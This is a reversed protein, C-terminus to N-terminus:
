KEIEFSINYHCPYVSSTAYSHGKTHPVILRVWAKADNSTPRGLNIYDLPVLWGQPVSSGYNNYMQGSLFSATYTSGVRSVTMKDYNRADYDNRTQYVGDLINYENYRILLNTQLNEELKKGEGKRVIQMYVGSRDLYVYEHKATDTTCGNAIFDTESIVKIDNTAIFDSIASREKDKKDGYTEGDDCSCFTVAAIFALLITFVKSNSLGLSTTM